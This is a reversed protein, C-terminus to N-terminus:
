FMVTFDITMDESHAGVHSVTATVEETFGNYHIKDVYERIDEPDRGAAFGKNSVGWTYPATVGSIIIDATEGPSVTASGTMKTPGIDAADQGDVTDADGGIDVNSGDVAQRADAASFRSHHADADSAHSNLADQTAVDVALMSETVSSAAVRLRGDADLTLGDSAALDLVQGSSLRLPGSVSVPNHHADRVLGSLQAHDTVTLERTSGSSDTFVLARDDDLDYWSEGEEVDAPQEAQVYDYKWEVPPPSVNSV